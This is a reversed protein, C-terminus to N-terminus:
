KRKKKLEAEFQREIRAIRRRRNGILELTTFVVGVACGVTLWEFLANIVIGEGLLAYNRITNSIIVGALYWLGLRVLSRNTYENRTQNPVISLPSCVSNWLKRLTRKMSTIYSSNFYFAVEKFDKLYPFPVKQTGRNEETM